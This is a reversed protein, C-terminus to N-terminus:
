PRPGSRKPQRRGRVAQQEVEGRVQEDPTEVVFREGPEGPTRLGLFEGAERRVAATDGEDAVRIEVDDVGGAVFEPQGGVAALVREVALEVPDVLLLDVAAAVVLGMPPAEVAAADGEQLAVLPVNGAERHDVVHGEPRRELDVRVGLGPVRVGADQESDGLGAASADGPDVRAEVAVRLDQDDVDRERGVAIDPVLYLIAFLREEVEVPGVRRGALGLSNQPLLGVGPDVHEARRVEELVAAEEPEAFPGSELVEVAVVPVALERLGQGVTAPFDTREVGHVFFGPEGVDRSRVTRREAGVHQAYRKVTGGRGEQGFRAAAMSGAERLVPRDLVPDGGRAVEVRRRRHRQSAGAALSDAVEAAAVHRVELPEVARLGFEQADRGAVADVQRRHQDSRVTEIGVADVRGPNVDVATGVGLLDPVAPLPRAAHPELVQRLLPDDDEDDVVADSRALADLRGPRNVPVEALLFEDVQDFGDVPEARLRPDVRLPDAEVAPAEAAVHREIRQGTRVTEAGTDGAAADDVPACVVRDVGLTVHRSRVVVRVAVLAGGHEFRGPIEM